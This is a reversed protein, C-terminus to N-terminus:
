FDLSLFKMELITKLSYIEPLILFQIKGFDNVVHPLNRLVINDMSECYYVQLM